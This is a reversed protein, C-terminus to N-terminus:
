VAPRFPAACPENCICSVFFDGFIAMQASNCLKTPSDRRLWPVYRYDSFITLCCYPELPCNLHHVVAHRDSHPWSNNCWSGNSLSEVKNQLRFQQFQLTSICTLAAKQRTNMYMYEAKRQLANVKFYTRRFVGSPHM